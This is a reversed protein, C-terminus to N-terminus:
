QWPGDSGGTYTFLGESYSFATADLSQGTPPTWQFTQGDVTVGGTVVPIATAADTDAAVLVPSGEFAIIAQAIESMEDATRMGVKNRANGQLGNYMLYGTASIIGMIVIAVMLSMLSFGGKSRFARRQDMHTIKHM